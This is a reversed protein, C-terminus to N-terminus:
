FAYVYGGGGGLHRCTQVRFCFNCFSGFLALVWLTPLNQIGGLSISFDTQRARVARDLNKTDEHSSWGMQQRRGGIASYGPYQGSCTRFLM